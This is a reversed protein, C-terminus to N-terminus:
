ETYSKCINEETIHTTTESEQQNGKSCFTKLQIFDLKYKEKTVESNPIM